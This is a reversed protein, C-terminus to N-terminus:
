TNLTADQLPKAYPRRPFVLQLAGGAIKVTARRYKQFIVGLLYM